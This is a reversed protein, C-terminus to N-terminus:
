LGDKVHVCAADALIHDQVLGVDGNYAANLIDSKGVLRAQLVRADCAAAVPSCQQM